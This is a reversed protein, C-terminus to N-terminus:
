NTSANRTRTWGSSRSAGSPVCSTGTGGPSAGPAGPRRRRSGAKDEPNPGNANNMCSIPVNSIEGTASVGAFCRRRPFCGSPADGDDGDSNDANDGDGEPPELLVAAALAGREALVKSEINAASVQDVIILTKQRDKKIKCGCGTDRHHRCTINQALPSVTPLHRSRNPM